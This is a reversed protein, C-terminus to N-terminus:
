AFVADLASEISAVRAHGRLYKPRLTDYYGKPVKANHWRLWQGKRRQHDILYALSQWHDAEAPEWPEDDPGELRRKGKPKFGRFVLETWCAAYREILWTRKDAFFGGVMPGPTYRECPRAGPRGAWELITPISNLEAQLHQDLLDAPDITHVRCTAM